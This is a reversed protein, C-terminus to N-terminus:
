RRSSSRKPSRCATQTAPEHCCTGTSGKEDLVFAVLGFLREEVLDDALLEFGEQGACSLLARGDGTEDLSFQSGIELAAYERVTKNAHVAVLAAM